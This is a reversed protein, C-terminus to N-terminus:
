RCGQCQRDICPERSCKCLPCFWTMWFPLSHFPRMKTNAIIFLPMPEALRSPGWSETVSGAIQQFVFLRDLCSVPSTPSGSCSGRVLTKFGACQCVGARQRSAYDAVSCAGCVSAVFTRSCRKLLCMGTDLVGLLHKKAQHQFKPLNPCGSVSFSM